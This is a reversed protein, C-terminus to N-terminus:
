SFKSIIGNLFKIVDERYKIINENQLRKDFSKYSDLSVESPHLKQHYNLSDHLSPRDIRVSYVNDYHDKIFNIQDPYRCDTVVVVEMFSSNLLKNEEVFDIIRKTWINDKYKRASYSLEQLFTIGREDKKGDWGIRIAIDKVYDAFGFRHFNANINSTSVEDFFTDKGSGAKGSVLIVVLM